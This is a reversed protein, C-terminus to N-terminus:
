KEKVEITSSKTNTQWMFNRCFVSYNWTTYCICILKLPMFTQESLKLFYIYINEAM